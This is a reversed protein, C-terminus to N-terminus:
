LGNVSGKLSRVGQGDGEVKGAGNTGGHPRVEGTQRPRLQAGRQDVGARDSRVLRLHPGALDPAPDVIEPDGVELRHGVDGLLVARGQGLVESQGARLDGGALLGLVPHDLPQDLERRPDLGLRHEDGVDGARAGEADGTLDAARQVAGEAVGAGLAQDAVEGGALDDGLHLDGPVVQAFPRRGRVPALQGIDHEHAHALREIVEVVDGVGQVDDGVVLAQPNGPPPDGDGGGADRRLQM